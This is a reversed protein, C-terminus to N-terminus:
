NAEPKEEVTNRANPKYQRIQRAPLFWAFKREQILKAVHILEVDGGDHDTWSPSGSPGFYVRASISALENMPLGLFLLANKDDLFWIRINLRSVIEVTVFKLHGALSGQCTSMGHENLRLKVPTMARLCMHHFRHIPDSTEFNGIVTHLRPWIARLLGLAQKDLKLSSYIRLVSYYVPLPVGAGTPYIKVLQSKKIFGEMVFTLRRVFRWDPLKHGDNGTTFTDDRPVLSLGGLGDNPPSDILLGLYKSYDEDMRARSDLFTVTNLHCAFPADDCTARKYVFSLQTIIYGTLLM